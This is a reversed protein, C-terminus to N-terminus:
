GHHLHAERLAAVADKFARGRAAYDAFMDFSSCAPALLVTGGRAAGRLADYGLRVAEDMSDAAVVMTRKGLDAVIRVRAEGIAIVTRDARELYPLLEAFDGGKHRGGLIVALPGDFAELSRKAAAVNTAKSDNVFAVAGLSGADELVHEAGRFDAVAAAINQPAAGLIRAATAAALLDQALHSGRLRLSSRLFLQEDDADSGRLRLMARDGQFWAGDGGPPPPTGTDTFTVIRARGAQAARLVAPDDANVVAFDSSQQNAFIRAKAGQYEDFDRHQDLHDPTLNLFM